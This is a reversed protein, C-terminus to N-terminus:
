APLIWTHALLGCYFCDNDALLVISRNLTLCQVWVKGGLYLFQKVRYPSANVFHESFAVETPESATCEEM